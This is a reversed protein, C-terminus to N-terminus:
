FCVEIPLQSPILPNESLVPAVERISGSRREAVFLDRLVIKQATGLSPARKGARDPQFKQETRLNGGMFGSEWSSRELAM